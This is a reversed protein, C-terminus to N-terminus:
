KIYIYEKKTKTTIDRPDSMLWPIKSTLIHGYENTDQRLSM